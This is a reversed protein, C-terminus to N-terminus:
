MKVLVKIYKNPHEVQEKLMAGAADFPIEKSILPTPTIMKNALMNIASPIQKAGSCVGRVTLQRNFIQHLTTSSFDPKTGCWGAVAVRGNPAVYDFCRGLPVSDASNHCLTEAMNGGTLSYIKKQVDEEVGNICYYVGLEEALKLRDSRTDVLIPVAQYYMAAQALIVGIVSAGMIVLHEGKQLGLKSVITLALAAHGAFVAETNQVRDPLKFVDEARIIAFDSLLGDESLGYSKPEICDTARGGKCSDCNDCFIFPDIAVRDGRVVGTVNEGTETVLGVGQRGLTFPFKKPKISGSYLLRDTSSLASYLLKVKVYDAEAPRAAIEELRVAGSEIIRWAKMYFTYCLKLLYAFSKGRVAIKLRKKIIAPKRSSLGSKVHYLVIRVAVRQAGLWRLRLRRAAM